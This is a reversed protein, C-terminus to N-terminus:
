YVIVPWDAGQAARRLTYDPNVACAEGAATMMLVDPGHSGYVVSRSLDIGQEAAWGRMWAASEHGGIVPEVLRGTARGNRMELDNCVLADVGRVYTSLAGVFPRISESVLVIRHGRRRAERVLDLGSDLIADKLVTEAYEEGLVAVRDESFDRFLVHTLRTTTTRDNQGLLGVLPAALALQGVRGLTNRLGQANVAAWAAVSLASRKVLTGEVRFFAATDSVVVEIREATRGPDLLGRWQRITRRLADQVLAM